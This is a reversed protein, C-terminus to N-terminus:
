KPGIEALLDFNGICNSASIKMFKGRARCELEICKNNKPELKGMAIYIYLYISLTFSLSRYHSWDRVLLDL